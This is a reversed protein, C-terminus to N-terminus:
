PSGPRSRVGGACAPRTPAGRLGGQRRAVGQLEATSSDRKRSPRVEEMPEDEEPTAAGTLPQEAAALGAGAAAPAAAAAGAAAAAELAAVAAAVTAAAADPQEGAAASPLQDRTSGPAATTAGNSAAEAPTLSTM